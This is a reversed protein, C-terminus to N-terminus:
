SFFNFFKEFFGRNKVLKKSFKVENENYGKAIHSAWIILDKENDTFFSKLYNSSLIKDISIQFKKLGIELDKIIDYPICIFRLDLSFYECKLNKPLSSYDKKDIKYNKIFMHIIRNEGLSKLCAERADLLPRFLSANTLFDGNNNNKISLDISFSDPSDYIINIDKIFSGLAKEIKYINKELFCDLKKFEIGDHNNECFIEEEFIKELNDTQLISLLFKKKSVYLYSKYTTNETM